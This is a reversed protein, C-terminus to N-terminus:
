GGTESYARVAGREIELRSRSGWLPPGASRAWRGHPLAHLVSTASATQACRARVTAAAPSTRVVGVRECGESPKSPFRHIDQHPSERAKGPHGPVACAAVINLVRVTPLRAPVPLGRIGPPRWGAARRLGWSGCACALFDSAGANPARGHRSRPLLRFSSLLGPRQAGPLPPARERVARSRGLTVATHASPPNDTAGRRASRLRGVPWPTCASDEEATRPAAHPTVIDGKAAAAAPARTGLDFPMLDIAMGVRGMEARPRASLSASLSGELSSAKRM